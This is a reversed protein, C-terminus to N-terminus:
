DQWTPASTLMPVPSGLLHLLHPPLVFRPVAIRQTANGINFCKKKAMFRKQTRDFREMFVGKCMPLDRWFCGACHVMFDGDEYDSTPGDKPWMRKDYSNMAKQPLVKVHGRYTGPRHELLAVWANQEHVGKWYHEPVIFVDNLFQRSFASNKMAFVGTNLGRVDKTQVVDYKDDFVHSELRLDYNTILTDVDSYFIWDYHPLIAQAMSLKTWFPDRGKMAFSENGVIFDYGWKDAYAKHNHYAMPYMWAYHKTFRGLTMFVAIKRTAKLAPDAPGDGNESITGGVNSRISETPKRANLWLMLGLTAALFLVVLLRHRNSVNGKADDSM